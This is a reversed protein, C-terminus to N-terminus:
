LRSGGDTSCAVPCPSCHSGRPFGRSRTASLSLSLSGTWRPARALHSGGTLPVRRGWLGGERVSGALSAFSLVGFSITIAPWGSSEIKSAVQPVSALEGFLISGLPASDAGLRSAVGATASFVAPNSSGATATFSATIVRWVRLPPGTTSARWSSSVLRGGVLPPAPASEAGSTESILPSCGVRGVLYPLVTSSSHALTSARRPTVRLHVVPILWRRTLPPVPASNAGSVSPAVCTEFSPSSESCILVASSTFSAEEGGSSM